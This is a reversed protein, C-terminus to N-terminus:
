KGSLLQEFWDLTDAMAPSETEWRPEKAAREAVTVLSGIRELEGPDVYVLGCGHCEEVEIITSGWSLTVTDLNMRCDPAACLQDAKKRDRCLLTSSLRVSANGYRNAIASVDLATLDCRECRMVRVYSGRYAGGRGRIQGETLPGHCRPCDM